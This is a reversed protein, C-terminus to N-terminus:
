EAACPQSTFLIRGDAQKYSAGLAECIIDLKTFLPEDALRLNLTCHRLGAADYEIAVGYAKELATLIEAVPRDNFVFPQPALLAPQAMVERRLQQRGASYVAQQNPLVVLSAAAAGPVAVRPSVRVRGTRVQVQAESQGAFAQVRFSTGLVTTVVQDTYVLFPHAADHFVDFFAEGTLYVKRQAGSFARPYKLSSAPALTIISGDPLAVRASRSTPNAAVVWTANRPATASQWIAITAAPGGGNFLALIGVGLAFLAAAAWKVGGSPWLTRAASVPPIDAAQQAIRQWVTAVLEAQEEATLGLQRESGLSQYWHEIRQKETPTCDGTQYRNLLAHFEAQSM